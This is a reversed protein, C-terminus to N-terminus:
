SQSTKLVCIGCAVTQCLAFRCFVTTDSSERTVEQMLNQNAISAIRTIDIQTSQEEPFLWGCPNIIGISSCPLAWILERNIFAHSNHYHKRTSRCGNPHREIVHTKSLYLEVCMNTCTDRMCPVEAICTVEAGSPLLRTEISGALNSEPKYISLCPIVQSSM